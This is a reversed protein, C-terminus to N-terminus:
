VINFYGSYFSLVTLAVIGAAIFYVVLGGIKMLTHFRQANTEEMLRVMQALSEALQGSDEGVAVTALQDNTLIGSVAFYEKFSRGGELVYLAGELRRSVVSNGAAAASNKAATMADLGAALMASLSWFARALSMDRVLRGIFPICLTGEDSMIRLPGRRCVKQWFLYVLGVFAYGIGLPPVVVSAYSRELNDLVLYKLPPLLIAAHLLLLPYILSAIFRRKARYRSEYYKALKGATDVMMGSEEAGKIIMVQFDDFYKPYKSMGEWFTGGQMIHHQIGDLMWLVPGKKGEKMTDLGKEITLGSNLLTGLHEYFRSLQRSNMRKKM